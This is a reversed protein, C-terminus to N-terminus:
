MRKSLGALSGDVTFLRTAFEVEVVFAQAM